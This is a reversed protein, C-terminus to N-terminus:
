SRKEDKALSGLHELVAPDADPHRRRITKAVEDYYAEPPMDVDLFEM